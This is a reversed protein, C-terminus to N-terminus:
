RTAEWQGSYGPLQGASSGWTGELLKRNDLSVKASYSGAALVRETLTDAQKTGISELIIQRDAALYRGSFDERGILENDLRWEFFGTLLLGDPMEEQSTFKLTSNNWSKGEADMAKHLTWTGYTLTPLSSSAAAASAQSGAVETKAPHGSRDGMHNILVPLAAVLVTVLAWVPWPPNAWKGEAM